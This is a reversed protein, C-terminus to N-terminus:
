MGHFPLKTPVFDLISRRANDCDPIDTTQKVKSFQKKILIPLLEGKITSINKDHIIYDCVWKAMIYLHADQLNSHVTMRAMSRLVKKSMKVEEEVDAEASFLCLQDGALGILDREKKYKTSKAGPVVINKLDFMSKSLMATFAANNMRHMDVMGRMGEELILDGSVIVIHSGTLKESILRLSDATGLEEQGPIGVIDLKISLNYREQLKNVEQKASEPVLVIAETFGNTQLMNLPYWVLPMNGVPLLCKPKGSTLDTMRSGKGGAMVVAQLTGTITM